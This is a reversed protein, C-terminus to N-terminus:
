WRASLISPRGQSSPGPSMNIPNFGIDNFQGLYGGTTTNPLVPSMGTGAGAGKNMRNYMNVQAAGQAAALPNAYRAKTIDAEYLYPYMAQNRRYNMLNMMTNMFSNEVDYAAQKYRMDYTDETWMNKLQQEQVRGFQNLDNWNDQVAQRHGETYGPLMRGIAGLFNLM